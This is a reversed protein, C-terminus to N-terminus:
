QEKVRVLFEGSSHRFSVDLCHACGHGKEFPAPEVSSEPVSMTCPRPMSSKLVGAIMNAIEKTADLADAEVVSNVEQMLMAGTAEYALGMAMRVEIRGTWVGSLVVSGVMHAALLVSKDNAALAEVPMSLMQEWFQRSANVVAEENIQPLV